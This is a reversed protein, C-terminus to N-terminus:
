RNESHREVSFNRAYSHAKKLHLEVMNPAEYNQYCCNWEIAKVLTDSMGFLFYQRAACNARRLLFVSSIPIMLSCM